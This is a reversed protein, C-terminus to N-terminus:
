VSETDAEEPDGASSSDVGVSFKPSSKQAAGPAAPAAAAEGEEEEVATVRTSRSVLLSGELSSRTVSCGGRREWTNVVGKEEAARGGPSDQSTGMVM